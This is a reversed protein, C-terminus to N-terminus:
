LGPVGATQRPRRPQPGLGGEWEPIPALVEAVRRQRPRLAGIFQPGFFRAYELFNRDSLERWKVTPMVGEPTIVKGAFEAVKSSSITKDPSVPVGLEELAQVYRRALRDDAIVIDDGLIRYQDPRAGVSELLRHHALAFSPFSTGLGLPQGVTWTMQRYDGLEHDWVLWPARSLDKFLSIMRPDVAPLQALTREIYELPFNNTADSLDVSHLTAGARLKSLAWDVGKQQDHTCDAPIQRLYGLLQEKLPELALQHIRYPNAVARLKYGPEQLFSIRGVGEYKWDDWFSKPLGVRQPLGRYVPEYLEPYRQTLKRNIGVNWFAEWHTSFDTEPVTRDYAPARREPSWPFKTV